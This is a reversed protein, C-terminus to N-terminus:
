ISEGMVIPKEWLIKDLTIGRQELEHIIESATNKNLVAIILYDFSLTYISEVPEVTRYEFSYRKYNKDVWKVIKINEYLSLDSIFGQGVNGAGYIVVSKKILKKPYPFKYMNILWAKNQKSRNLLSVCRKVDWLDLLSHEICPYLNMIAIDTEYLLPLYNRFASGTLENSLSEGHMRYHYYPKEIQLASTSYYLLYIFNLDDDGTQLYNPIASFVKKQIDAKVLKSWQMFVLCSRTGTITEKLIDQSHSNDLIIYKKTQTSTKKIGDAYERCYGVSVFDVNEKLIEEVMDQYMTPEIWDDSDVTALYEGTAMEYGTKRAVVVGENKKHIVKIRRDKSSFYDCIKDSGDTSGDDVVIIELNKYTQSTISQLCESLYKKTNYVPVVVSVKPQM